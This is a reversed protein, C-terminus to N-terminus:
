PDCYGMYGARQEDRILHLGIRCLSTSDFGLRTINTGWAARRHSTLTGCDNPETNSWSRLYGRYEVNPVVFDDVVGLIRIPRVQDSLGRLAMGGHITFISRATEPRLVVPNSVQM